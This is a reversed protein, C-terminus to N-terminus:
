HPPRGRRVAVSARLPFPKGKNQEKQLRTMYARSAEELFKTMTLHLPPGQLAVVCNRVDEALQGDLHATVRGPAKAPAPKEKQANAPRRAPVMTDLFDTGVTPRRKTATNSM